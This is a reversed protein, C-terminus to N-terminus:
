RDTILYHLNQSLISIDSCYFTYFEHKQSTRARSVIAQSPISLPLPEDSTMGPRSTYRNYLFYLKVCNELSNIAVWFKRTKLDTKEILSKLIYRKDKQSNFSFFLKSFCVKMSRCGPQGSIFTTTLNGTLQTNTAMRCSVFRRDRDQIKVQRPNKEFIVYHTQQWSFVAFIACKLIM